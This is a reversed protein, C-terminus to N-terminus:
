NLNIANFADKFKAAVKSWRAFIFTSEEMLQARTTADKEQMIKNIIWNYLRLLRKNEEYLDQLFEM